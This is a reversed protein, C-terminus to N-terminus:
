NRSRLIWVRQEVIQSDIDASELVATRFFFIYFIFVLPRQKLMVLVCRLRSCLKYLQSSGGDSQRAKSRGSRGVQQRPGVHPPPPPPPRRQDPVARDHAGPLPGLPFLREAWTPLLVPVGCLQPDPGPPSISVTSPSPVRWYSGCRRLTVSLCLCSHHIFVSLHFFVSISKLRFCFWTCNRSFGVKRQEKVSFTSASSIMKKWSALFKNNM